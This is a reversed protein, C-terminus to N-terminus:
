QRTPDSKSARREYLSAQLAAELKAAPERNEGTVLALKAMKNAVPDRRAAARALALAQELFDSGVHSVLGWDLATQADIEKGFLIIERARAPGVVQPLRWTGGAAPILGLAPEPLSFRAQASCVRADCCLALELGGGIAAGNIAAITPFPANALEDFLKRSQLNFADKYRYKALEGLEAGACFSREGEATLVLARVCHDSGAKRLAEMLEAMMKKTYAHAKEPHALTLLLLSENEAGGQVPIEKQSVEEM